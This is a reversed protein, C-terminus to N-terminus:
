PRMERRRKIEKAAEELPPKLRSNLKLAETFDQEAEADKLQLM